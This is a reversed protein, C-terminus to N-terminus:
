KNDNQVLKNWQSLLVPLKPATDSFRRIVKKCFDEASYCCILESDKGAALTVLFKRRRYYKEALELKIGEIIERKAHANCHRTGNLLMRLAVPNDFEFKLNIPHYEVFVGNVYFDIVKNHGVGVQFTEGNRLRFDKVYRELLVGCAFESRSAFNLPTEPLRPLSGNKPDIERQQEPTLGM